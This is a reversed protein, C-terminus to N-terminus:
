AEVDESGEDAYLAGSSAPVGVIEAGFALTAWRVEDNWLEDFLCFKRLVEGIQEM